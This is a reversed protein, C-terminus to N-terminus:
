LAYMDDGGTWGLFMRYLKRIHTNRHHDQRALDEDGREYVMGHKHSSYMRLGIDKSAQDNTYGKVIYREYLQGEECM